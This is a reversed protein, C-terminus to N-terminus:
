AASRPADDRQALFGRVRRSMRRMSWLLLGHALLWSLGAPRALLPWQCAVPLAVGALGVAGIALRKDADTLLLHIGPLHVGPGCRRQLALWALFSRIELWMGLVFPLLGLGLLAAGVVEVRAGRAWMVAALVFGVAAMAWATRLPGNRRHRARSQLWPIGLGLLVLPLLSAAALAWRGAGGLVAAGGLLPLLCLVWPLGVVLRPPLAPSAQFMPMVVSGVAVGLGLCWGVLGLVAHLEAVAIRPVAVGGALGAALLAGLVVVGVLASMPALLARRLRASLGARCLARLVGLAFVLLSAVMLGSAPLLLARPGTLLAGVFGLLGLNLGALIAVAVRPGPMRVGAVVPLFQWLSGLMANGLVGLTLLHVFGVTAPSWRTQLLAEGQWLLLLGALLGWLPVVALFHLPAAPAPAHELALRAM